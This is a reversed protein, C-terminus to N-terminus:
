QFLIFIEFLLIKLLFYTLLVEEIGTDPSGPSNMSIELCPTLRVEIWVSGPGAECIKFLKTPFSPSSGGFEFSPPNVTGQM